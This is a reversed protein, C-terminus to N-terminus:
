PYIRYKLKLADTNRGSVDTWTENVTFENGVRGISINYKPEVGSTVGNANVACTPTGALVPAGAIICFPSPAAPGFIADPTTAVINKIQEIQSEALKLAVSQEQASRTAQLSRNTTVYAGGLILSVVAIAILVEVLSDGREGRSNERKFMLM